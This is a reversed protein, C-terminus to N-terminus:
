DELPIDQWQNQLLVRQTTFGAKLLMDQCYKQHVGLHDPHHADANIQVPIQRKSAEELIWLPPYIDKTAGRLMGGFNVEM